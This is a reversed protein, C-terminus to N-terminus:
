GLRSGNRLRFPRDSLVANLSSLLNNISDPDLVRVSPPSSLSLFTLGTTQFLALYSLHDFVFLFVQRTSGKTSFSGEGEERWNMEGGLRSSRRTFRTMSGFESIKHSLSARVLSSESLSRRSWEERLVSSRYTDQRETFLPRPFLSFTLKGKRRGEVEELGSSSEGRRVM